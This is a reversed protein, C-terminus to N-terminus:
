KSQSNLKGGLFVACVSGPFTIGEFPSWSVKTKLKEKSVATPITLNLVTFNAYFGKEFKGFGSGFAAFRKDINKLSPLFQNVFSGPNESCVKAALRADMKKEVILWTVFAGYTDLGTLGSIGQNKEELSHPAHDTALFDIEGSFLAKLMADQDSKPRIPPNMQFFTKRSEPITEDNFFLHQPTVECLVTTGNARATRIKNMGEGSSFHCLKGVLHYKEILNLATETAMVEAKTPRRKLHSKEDKKQVLVEPDECHFSVHQGKYFKLVEDLEKNSKFFLEGISPGMYAKYPVLYSLPRTSPGIGAYLLIPILGNKTLKLKDEYSKDDVPPIPNNPMDCLHTLGGNLAAKSASLFDEKYIHKQSVDERAHVHIDGMGAFVLCNDDFYYDIKERPIKLDGMELILGTTEDFRVQRRSKIKSDVLIGELSKM